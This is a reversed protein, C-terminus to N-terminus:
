KMQRMQYEKVAIKDCRENEPHGSHGQIWRFAVNHKTLLSDLRMWLDVNLVAKNNSKRWGNQKWSVLWGPNIADCVYKSDSIVTVDCKCKLSNLGSIVALLEMRNNTTNDEFGSVVKEAEGYKLIACYGGMGPNGSCAGDTYIFVKM